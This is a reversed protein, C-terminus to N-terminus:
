NAEQVTLLYPYDTATLKVKLLNAGRAVVVFPVSRDRIPDYVSLNAGNGKLGQIEVTYEEPPLDRTVDRTTVYYPIVFRRANVQYPLIALVDRNYLDPYAPTGNGAFQRHNHTDSISTVRLPRTTTLRRDLGAGLRATLRGIVQLPPSVANPEGVPDRADLRDLNALVQEAVLGHSRDGGGIGFLSLRTVGKNLFFSLYRATTKAKIAMAREVTVGANDEVPALNVETIWVPREVTKGGVRGAFRGHQPPGGYYGTSIPATDRTISETQMGTAPYEPFLTSYTPVFGPKQLEYLANVPTTGQPEAAPYIRRAPYPHKSIANIRAPENAAAPWPITNAFGNSVLVRRFEAPRAEIYAATEQVLLGWIDTEPYTFPKQAYYSNVYLFATGFTLENWIELDFGRDEPTGVIGGVFRGVTGVYRLWGDVTRRYDSSGPVSFPRYKLTAVSLSAGAAIAKPLPKSLTVARGDIATFLIEAAKYETVGSLGSLGPVLGRTDGLVLRTAGVPADNALVVTQTKLPCPSGHNSNVLILPRIGHRKAATLISRLNDATDLKSEDDYNISGWGIELRLHRVGQRALLGLLLDPNRTQLNYNIGVGDIFRAAPVTELTARWPQLWHSHTGFPLKLLYDPDTYASQLTGAAASHVISLSSLLAIASLFRM